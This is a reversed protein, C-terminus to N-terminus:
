VTLGKRRMVARQSRATRESRVDGPFTPVGHNALEHELPVDDDGTAPQLGTIREAGKFPSESAGGDGEQESPVTAGPEMGAEREDGESDSSDAGSGSADAANAMEEMTATRWRSMQMILRELRRADEKVQGNARYTVKMALDHAEGLLGLAAEMRTLQGGQQMYLAAGTTAVDWAGLLLQFDEASVIYGSGSADVHARARRELEETTPQTTSM